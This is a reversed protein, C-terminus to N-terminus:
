IRGSSFSIFDGFDKPPLQPTRFMEMSSITMRYTPIPRKPYRFKPMSEFPEMVSLRAFSSYYTWFAGDKSKTQSVDSDKERWGTQSLAHLSHQCERNEDRVAQCAVDGDVDCPVVVKHLLDTGVGGLLDEPLVNHPRKQDKDCTLWFRM